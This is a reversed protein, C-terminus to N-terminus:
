TITAALVAPSTSFTAAASRSRPPRACATAQSTVSSFFTLRRPSAALYWRPATSMRTFLAPAEAEAGSGFIVSSSHFRISRAFAVDVKRQVRSNAGAITSRRHPRTILMADTAPSSPAFYM